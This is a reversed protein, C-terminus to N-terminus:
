RSSELFKIILELNNFLKIGKGQNENAPKVIWM